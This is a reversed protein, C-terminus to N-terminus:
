RNRRLAALGAFPRHTSSEAAGQPGEGDPAEAAAAGPGTKDGIAGPVRPYPDLSLALEVAAIEGLDILDDTFTEFDQETEVPADRDEAEDFLLIEITQDIHATVPELTVVCSQIVEAAICGSLRFGSASRTPKLSVTFRFAPLGVLGFRTALATREAENADHQFVAGDEGSDLASARVAFSFEPTAAQNM